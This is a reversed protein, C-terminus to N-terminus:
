NEFGDAFIRAPVLNGDADRGDLQLLYDLLQQRANADGTPRHPAARQLDNATSVTIHDLGPAQNFMSSVRRVVITNSTGANLPVNEFRVRRWEFHTRERSLSREQNHSGNVTIRVVTDATPWYRLEVAGIGGSGGDVQNFTVRAGDQQLNVMHGHFSSDENVDPFGPLAAGGAFVGSEAEYIRGGAVSFVEDLREASGDHFYPATDWLGLLTPTDIGILPEGLRQGSSTRLTGVDHLTAVDLTSDTHDRAPDHCSACGESVFIGAGALASATMGGTANRHPSRPLTQTGLSTVYDGLQDLPESRGRNPAGLPPNPQQGAPLFGLGGFEQVIDIVFDEIENFNGTWHVNGHLMGSRGRLDVTNRFGEGRQTFDWTRGDHSGDLHCSACSIYGERSMENQGSPTNGAFYFHRKGALVSPPLVEGTSTVIHQVDLARSGTAIFDGMALATVSRGMLNRSWLTNTVPDFLLAQPAPGTPVRWISSRGGGDRLALDDFVAINDNGQLAIFAYDGRPSFVLASPSDANDIDIRARANGDFDRGPERPPNLLLDIRGFASRVTSDPRMPANFNLDQRFFDGRNTDAKIAGFWLWDQQPSLVLSVIYNPVGPGDSGGADLGRVGRDRWLDITRTLAMSSGNVEWVEGFHETSIFRSVFVRNGDGSIAIARASPGLEVRGTEARTNANYRLLQGHGPNGAARAHLTAFVASGSRNVAVAQPASGYGTSINARVVGSESLVAIRDADRLAVWVDGAPTVAVSVPATPEELGLLAALQFQQELQRTDANLRSLIGNDPDVVWLKRTAANLALQSSHTPLPGTPVSAVTMTVTRTVVSHSGDPKVDRVQVKVPYHGQEAFSRSVSATASWDTAPTGDGFSFRYQLPDGDADSAVASFQVSQGPAAPAPDVNFASLVPPANGGAVAGGTSFTFSYAEIGNGSADKIGGAPILLEYTTNPALFQKPTLTLVGDYSFSTWADVPAGGVPRLTITVGNIITYSELAKAIVLSIPAGRPFNTQGPRPVHYGVYPSRTDPTAQHCWVGIGDRDDASMGGSILLNGLPLTFQSVDLPGGVSGPPRNNGVEDLELVPTLTEMNIKHRRTFVFENQTQVYPVDTGANMAPTGSLNMTAVLNLNTPDSYDIVFFQDRDAGGALVLYNEWVAAIYAGVAGTFKDLLAPPEPPDNFVPSIDYALVGLMSADSTVFLLNGLLISNGAVGDDALPEWEALLQDARWLRARGDNAAYQIWNFPMAWPWYIRHLESNEPFTQVENFREAQPIQGSDVDHDNVGPSIRRYYMGFLGGLYDGTKTYGHTGHDVFPPLEKADTISLSGPDNLNTFALTRRGSGAVNDSYLRGNHHAIITVRGLDVQRFLLQGPTCAHQTPFGSVVPPVQALLSQAAGMSLLLWLASAHMGTRRRTCRADMVQKGTNAM